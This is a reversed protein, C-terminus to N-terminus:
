SRQEVTIGAKEKLSLMNGLPDKTNALDDYELLFDVDSDAGFDERVVSGFVYLEKVHHKSCLTKIIELNNQIIPHM